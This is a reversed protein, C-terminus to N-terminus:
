KQLINRDTKWTMKLGAYQLTTFEESITISKIDKRKLPTKWYTALTISSYKKCYTAKIKSINIFMKCSFNKKYDDLPFIDIFIGNNCGAHHDFSSIGTTNSNRLRIFFRNFFSPDTLPSQFFYPHSFEMEAVSILKQYDARPMAFDLDDDWPIFGHHRVAGIATGGIAM